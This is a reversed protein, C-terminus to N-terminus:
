KSLPLEGLLFMPFPEGFWVGTERDYYVLNISVLLGLVLTGCPKSKGRFLSTAELQFENLANIFFKQFRQYVRESESEAGSQIAFIM